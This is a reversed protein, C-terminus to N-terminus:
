PTPLWGSSRATSSSRATPPSLVALRPRGHIGAGAAARATGILAAPARPEHGPPRLQGRPFRCTTGIARRHFNALAGAVHRNSYRAGRAHVLNLGESFARRRKPYLTRDRMFASWDWVYPSANLLAQLSAAPELLALADLQRQREPTGRRRSPPRLDLFRGGGITRQASVDRVVFRDGVAAAIPQGLVLQVKAAAGPQIPADGLLVVRAGVEMAAHHLRVPFWQGIPKKEGPLIRLVADIRDTPAHLELIRAGHRRASCCGQFNGRRGSQARVPGGGPEEEAPHNQAHISRVRADLGSPSILLRDGVRVSGSLVTGTVIVGAGTLTFSRDIALRFRASRRPSEGHEASQAAFLRGRLDDM